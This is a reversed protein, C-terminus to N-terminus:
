QQEMLPTTPPVDLAFSHQQIFNDHYPTSIGEVVATGDATNDSSIKLVISQIVTFSSTNKHLMINFGSSIFYIILIIRNAM